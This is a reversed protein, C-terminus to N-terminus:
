AGAFAQTLLISDYGQKRWSPDSSEVERMSGVRFGGSELRAHLDNRTVFLTRFHHDDCIWGEAQSETVLALCGGPRLVRRAEALAADFTAWDPLSEMAFCSQVFDFRGTEYPWPQSLDAVRLSKVQRAKDGVLQAPTVAGSQMRIAHGAAELLGVDIVGRLAQDIRRQSDAVNEPKLDFGHVENRGVAFVAWYLLTPGCGADLIRLGAGAPLSGSAELLFDGVERNEHGLANYYERWYAGSAYVDQADEAAPQVAGQTV